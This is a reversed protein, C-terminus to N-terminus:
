SYYVHLDRLNETLKVCRTEINFKRSVLSCVNRMVFMRDQPNVVWIRSGEEQYHM